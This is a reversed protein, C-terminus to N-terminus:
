LIDLPLNTQKSSTQDVGDIKETLTVVCMNTSACTASLILLVAVFALGGGAFITINREYRKPKSANNKPPKNLEKDLDGKGEDDYEDYWKKVNEEAKRKDDNIKEIDKSFEDLKKAFFNEEEQNKIYSAYDSRNKANSLISNSISNM